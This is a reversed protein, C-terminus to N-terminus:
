SSTGIEQSIIYEALNTRNRPTATSPLKWSDDDHRATGEQSNLLWRLHKLKLSQEPPRLPLRKNYPVSYIATFIQLESCVALICNVDQCTVASERTLDIRTLNKCNRLIFPLYAKVSCGYSYQIGSEKYTQGRCLELCKGRDAFSLRNFIMDFVEASLRGLNRMNHQNVLM